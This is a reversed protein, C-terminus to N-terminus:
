QEYEGSYRGYARRRNFAHMAREFLPVAQRQAVRLAIPLALSLMGGLAQRGPAVPKEYRVPTEKRWRGPRRQPERKNRKLRAAFFGVVLAAGFLAPSAARQRVRQKADSAADSLDHMSQRLAVRRDRIRQELTKIDSDLSADSRM